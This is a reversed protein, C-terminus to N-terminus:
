APLSPIQILIPLSVKQRGGQTLCTILFYLTNRDPNLKKRHRVNRNQLTNRSYCAGSGSIEVNNPVLYSIESPMEGREANRESPMETNGDYPYRFCVYYETGPTLHEFHGNNDNSNQWHITEPNDIGSTTIGYIIGNDHEFLIETDTMKLMLPPEPATKPASLTHVTIPKSTAVTTETSLDFIRVVVTYDTNPLSPFFEYKANKKLDASEYNKGGDISFHVQYGKKDGDVYQNFEAPM